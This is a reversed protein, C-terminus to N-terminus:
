AAVMGNPVSTTQLRQAVAPATHVFGPHLFRKFFARFLHSHAVIVISKAPSYRVQMPPHLHILLLLILPAGSKAPSYHVQTPTPPSTSSFILTHSSSLVRCSLVQDLLESLRWDLQGEAEM